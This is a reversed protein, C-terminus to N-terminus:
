RRVDHANAKFQILRAGDLMLIDGPISHKALSFTQGLHAMEEIDCNKRLAHLVGAAFADGTGIRDVIGAISMEDTEFSQDPADVRASIIHRDMSEVRRATSAIFSLNPFAEFMAFEAQRRHASSEGSFPRGLLLAADRHNGFLIDAQRVLRDLTEAANGHWEAWLRSRYNCDFSIPVGLRTAADAATLTARTGNVGLALTIGSLHLRDAGALLNEWDWSDAATEFFASHARDYHVETPRVGAGFEVFYFGMRGPVRHIGSVDVGLGRLTRIAMDGLPNGPLASVMRVDHGLQALACAVNAEAGAVWVDLKPTQLLLERGPPSLRLMIEGFAVFRGSMRVTRGGLKRRARRGEIRVVYFHHRQFQSRSSFIEVTGAIIV